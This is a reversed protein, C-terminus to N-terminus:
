IEIEFRIRIKWIKFLIAAKMKIQPKTTKGVRNLTKPYGKYDRM